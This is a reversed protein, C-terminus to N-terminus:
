LRATYPRGAAQYVRSAPAASLLEMIIWQWPDNEYRRPRTTGFSLTSEEYGM